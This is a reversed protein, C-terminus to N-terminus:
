WLTLQRYNLIVRSHAPCKCGARHASIGGGSPRYGSYWELILDPEWLKRMRGAVNVMLPEPFSNRARRSFWTDVQKITVNLYKSVGGYGLLYDNGVISITMPETM